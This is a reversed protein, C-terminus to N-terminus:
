KFGVAIGFSSKATAQEVALSTVSVSKFGAQQALRERYANVLEISDALGSVSASDGLDKVLTLAVGQPAAKFLASLVAPWDRRKALFEQRGARIQKLEEDLKTSQSTLNILRAEGAPQIGRVNEVFLRVGDMAQQRQTQYIYVALVLELLIIILLGSRPTIAAAPIYGPPLLNVRPVAHVATQSRRFSLSTRLMVGESGQASFGNWLVSSTPGEGIPSVDYLLAANLHCTVDEVEGGEGEGDKDQGQAAHLPLILLPPASLRTVTPVGAPSTQSRGRGSCRAVKM